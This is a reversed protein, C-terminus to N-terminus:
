GTARGQSVGCGLRCQHPYALLQVLLPAKATARITAQHSVRCNDIDGRPVYVRQLQLRQAVGCSVVGGGGAEQQGVARQVGHQQTCAHAHIHQLV